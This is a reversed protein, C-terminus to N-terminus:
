QVKLNNSESTHTCHGIHSNETTGQSWTKRTHQECIKQVVIFYDWDGRNNSTDGKNKCEVHAPNNNNNNNNCELRRHHWTSQYNTISTAFSRLAKKGGVLYELFVTPSSSGWSFPGIIRGFRRLNNVPRYVTVGWFLATLVGFDLSSDTWAADSCTVPFFGFIETSSSM